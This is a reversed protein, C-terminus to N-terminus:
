IPEIGIGHGHWAAVRSRQQFFTMPQGLSKVICGM